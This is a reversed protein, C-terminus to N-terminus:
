FPLADTTRSTSKKCSRGITGDLFHTSVSSSLPKYSVTLWSCSSSHSDESQSCEFNAFNLWVSHSTLVCSISLEKMSSRGAWKVTSLHMRKLRCSVICLCTFENAIPACWSAIPVHIQFNRTRQGAFAWYSSWLLVPRELRSYNPKGIKKVVLRLQM